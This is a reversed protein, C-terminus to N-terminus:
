DNIVESILSKLFKFEEYGKLHKRFIMKFVVMTIRAFIAKLLFIKLLLVKMNRFHKKYLLLFSEIYSRMIYPNKKSSGGLYHTIAIEPNYYVKLGLNWVRKCLDVDECYMFFNEDFGGVKEFTERGILLFSGSVYDIPIIRSFDRFRSIKFIQNLGTLLAFIRVPSPFPFASYQLSGDPNLNKCGMIGADKYNKMFEVAKYITEKPIITDSNLFLIFNGKSNRFGINNPKRM